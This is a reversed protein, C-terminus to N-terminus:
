FPYSQDPPARGGTHQLYDHTMTITQIHTLSTKTTTVKKATTFYRTIHVTAFSVNAIRGADLPTIAM